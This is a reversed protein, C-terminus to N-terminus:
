RCHSLRAWACPHWWSAIPPYMGGGLALWAFGPGGRVQLASVAFPFRAHEPITRLPVGKALDWLLVTGDESSSILAGYKHSVALHTVASVHGILTTKHQLQWTSGVIASAGPFRSRRQVKWVYVMCDDLGGTVLLAGNGSLCACSVPGIHLGEFTGVIQVSHRIPYPHPSHSHSHSHSLSHSHASVIPPGNLLSSPYCCESSPPFAPKAHLEPVGALGRGVGWPGRGVGWAGRGVGWAGRGVGWAGRGVGWAGRGVGWAGRGVGFAGVKSAGSAGEAEGLNLVRLSADIYGWSVCHMSSLPVRDLYAASATGLMACGLPLVITRDTNTRVLAGVADVKWLHRLRMPLLVASASSRLRSGSEAVIWV